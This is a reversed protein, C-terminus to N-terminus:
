GRLKAETKPREKILDDAEAEKFQPSEILLSKLLPAPAEKSFAFLFRISLTTEPRSFRCDVIM